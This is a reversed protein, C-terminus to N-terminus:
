RSFDGLMIAALLTCYFGLCGDGPTVTRRIKGGESWGDREEKGERRSCAKFCNLSSMVEGKWLWTCMALVHSVKECVALGHDCRVFNLTVGEKWWDCRESSHCSTIKCRWQNVAQTSSLRQGRLVAGVQPLQNGVGRVTWHGLEPQLQVLVWLDRIGPRLLMKCFSSQNDAFKSWTFSIM